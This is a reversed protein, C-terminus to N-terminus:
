RRAALFGILVGAAAAVAMAGYPHAHVSEDTARAMDKARQLGVQELESLQTRMQRMQELIRDRMGQFKQDGASAVSKLLQDTDDIMTRLSSAQGPQSETSGTTTTTDM